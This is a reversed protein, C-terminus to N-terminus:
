GNPQKTTQPKFLAPSAKWFKSSLIDSTPTPTSTNKTTDKYQSKWTKCTITSPQTSDSSKNNNEEHRDIDGSSESNKETKADVQVGIWGALESTNKVISNDATSPSLEVGDSRVPVASSTSEQSCEKPFLEELNDPLQTGEDCSCEDCPEDNATFRDITERAFPFGRKRAAYFERELAIAAVEALLDLKKKSRRDCYEDVDM